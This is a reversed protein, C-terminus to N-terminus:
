KSERMGYQELFRYPYGAGTSSVRELEAIDEAQLQINTAGLNDELQNLTRVGIIVSSVAPQALLWAMAIQSASANYKSRWVSVTDLIRWNQETDRRHWAEEVNGTM